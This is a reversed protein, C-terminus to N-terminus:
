ILMNNIYCATLRRSEIRHTGFVRILQFVQCKDRGYDGQLLATERIQKGSTLLARIMGDTTKMRSVDMPM